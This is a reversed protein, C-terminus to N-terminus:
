SVAELDTEFMKELLGMVTRTRSTLYFRLGTAGSYDPLGTDGGDCAALAEPPSHDAEVLM